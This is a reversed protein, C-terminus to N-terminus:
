PFHKHAIKNAAYDKESPNGGKENTRFQKAAAEKAKADNYAGKKRKLSGKLAQPSLDEEDSSPTRRLLSSLYDDILARRYLEEELGRPYIDLVEDDYASRKYGAYSSQDNIDREYVDAYPEANRAYLNDYGLDLDRAYLNDRDYDSAHATAVTAISLGTVALTKFLQM